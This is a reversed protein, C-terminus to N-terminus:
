AWGSPSGSSDDSDEGSASLPRAPTRPRGAGGHTQQKGEDTIPGKRVLRLMYVIGLGFLSFYVLVFLVLSLGVQATSLPSSADATRMVGYVVWPQRGMETTVWGALLAILGVPGIWQVISLFARSTYLHGRLRLIFSWIGTLIMLVGMGVMLRFTWFIV